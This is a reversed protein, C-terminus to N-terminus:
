MMVNISGDAGGTPSADPTDQPKNITAATASEQRGDGEADGEGQRGRAGGSHDQAEQPNAGQQAQGDAPDHMPRDGSQETPQVDVRRVQIGAETLRSILTQAERQLDGLTQANDARIQARLGGADMELSIRVQGLEPPDLRIVMSDGAGRLNGRMQAFVQDAPSVEDAGEVSTGTAASQAATAAQAVTPTGITPASQSSQSVTEMTAEFSQGDSSPTVAQAPEQRAAAANLVFRGQGDDRSQGDGTQRGTSPQGTQLGAAVASTPQTATPTDNSDSEDQRAPTKQTAEGAAQPAEKQINKASAAEPDAKPKAAVQEGKTEATDAAQTKPADAAQNKSADAAQKGDAPKETADTSAAQASDKTLMQGAKAHSPTEATEPNRTKAQQGLAALVARHVGDPADEAKMREGTLASLPAAKQASKEGSVQEATALAAQLLATKTPKANDAKGDKPQNREMAKRVHSRFSGEDDTGKSEEGGRDDNSRDTTRDAKTQDAHRVDDDDVERPRPNSEDTYDRRPTVTRRAAAPPESSVLQALSSMESM